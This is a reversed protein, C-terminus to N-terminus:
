LNIENNLLWNISDNHLDLYDIRILKINNDICYKSKIDDNIQRLKLGNNGGFHNISKFHQIGDFEILTNYKLLYFDFPLPLKNKCDKFKKQWIFKINNENLYNLIKTEGLSMNGYKNTGFFENYSIWNKKYARNPNAPLNIQNTRIRWKKYERYSTINFSNVYNKAEDYSFCNKSFLNDIYKRKKLSNFYEEYCIPCSGIKRKKNKKKNGCIVSPIIKFNHKHIKCGIIVPVRMSVYKTKAFNYKDGHLKIVKQIFEKQTLVTSM